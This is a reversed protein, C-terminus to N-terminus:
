GKSAKKASRKKPSAAVEDSARGLQVCGPCFWAKNKMNRRWGEQCLAQQAETEHEVRRKFEAACSPTACCVAYGGVDYIPKLEGDM